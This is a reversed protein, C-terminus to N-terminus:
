KKRNSHGGDDPEMDGSPDVTGVKFHDGDNDSRQGNTKASATPYDSGMVDIKTYDGKNFAEGANMDIADKEKSEDNGFPDIPGGSVNIFPPLTGTKVPSFETKSKGYKDFEAKAM